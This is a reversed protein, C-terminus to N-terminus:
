FHMPMASATSSPQAPNLNSPTRSAHQAASVGQQWEDGDDVSYVNSGIAFPHECDDNLLISAENPIPFGDTM